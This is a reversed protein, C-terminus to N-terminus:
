PAPVSAGDVADLHVGRPALFGRRKEMAPDQLMWSWLAGHLRAAVEPEAVSLDNTNEPDHAVDFLAYRPGSPTPMYILKWRGDFVM